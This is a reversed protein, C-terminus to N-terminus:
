QECWLSILYIKIINEIANKLVVYKTIFIPHMASNFSDIRCSYLIHRCRQTKGAQLHHTRYLKLLDEKLPWERHLFMRQQLSNVNKYWKIEKSWQKTIIRSENWSVNTFHDFYVKWIPKSARWYDSKEKFVKKNSSLSAPGVSTVKLAIKIFTIFQKFHESIGSM